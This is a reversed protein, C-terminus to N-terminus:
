TTSEAAPVHSASTVSRWWALLEARSWYAGRTGLRIPRPFNRSEVLEDVTVGAVDALRRLDSVVSAQALIVAEGRSRLDHNM